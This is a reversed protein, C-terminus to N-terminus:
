PGTVLDIRVYYHAQCSTVPLQPSHEGCPDLSKELHSIQLIWLVPMGEVLWTIRNDMEFKMDVTVM